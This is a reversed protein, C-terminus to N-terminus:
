VYIDKKRYILVSALLTVLIIGVFYLVRWWTFSFDASTAAPDVFKFPSIYGLADYKDAIKALVDIFYAALVIGIAPGTFSRMRRMFLSIILAIGGFCLMLLLGYIVIILLSTQNYSESVFASMSLVSALYVVLNLAFIYILFAAIKSLIVSARSLPQALLFETTKQAEEKHAIRSALTAAFISGLVLTYVINYTMYFGLPKTFTDIDMSFAKALEEPYNEMIASMGSSAEFMIPYLAMTLLILGVIIATWVIFLTRNLKLEKRILNWSM